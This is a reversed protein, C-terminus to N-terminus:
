KEWEFVISSLGNSYIWQFNSVILYFDNTLDGRRNIISQLIESVENSKKMDQSM